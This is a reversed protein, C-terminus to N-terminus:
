LGARAKQRAKPFEKSARLCLIIQGAHISANQSPVWGEHQRQGMSDRQQPDADQFFPHGCGEGRPGEDEM